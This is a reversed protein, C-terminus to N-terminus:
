GADESDQGGDQGFVVQQDPRAHRPQRFGGFLERRRLVTAAVVYLQRVDFPDQRGQRFQLKHVFGPPGDQGPGRDDEPLLRRGRGQRCDGLRDRRCVAELHREGRRRGDHGAGPVPEAPLLLGRPRESQLPARRFSENWFRQLREPRGGGGQDTRHACTGHPGRAQPGRGPEDKRM